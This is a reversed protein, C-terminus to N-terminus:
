PTWTWDPLSMRLASVTRKHWPASAMGVGEDISWWPSQGPRVGVLKSHMGWTGIVCLHGAVSLDFRSLCRAFWHGDAGQLVSCSRFWIEAGSLNLWRGDNPSIAQHDIAPAGPGGHGWM